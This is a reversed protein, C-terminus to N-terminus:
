DQQDVLVAESPLTARITAKLQRVAIEPSEKDWIVTLHHNTDFHTKSTEFRNKECTYIVPKGLGEAYGAEWYAGANEHTLDSILFRSTTIEVRLKDDILGAKPDEDLRYLEFGTARVAPKFYTEYILDVDKDGYKMAMFAKRSMIAGRKIEDYYQWGSMTLQVLGGTSKVLKLDKLHHFVFDVGEMTKAGLISQFAAGAAIDKGPTTRDGIWLILNNIQDSLNPLKTKFIQEVLYSNLIPVEKKEQMRRITYSLLPIKEDGKKLTQSFWSLVSGTLIYKGCKPCNILHKDGSLQSESQIGEKLSSQCIPCINDNEM